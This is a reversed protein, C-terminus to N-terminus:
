LRGSKKWFLELVRETKQIELVKFALRSNLAPVPVRNGIEWPHFFSASDTDSLM